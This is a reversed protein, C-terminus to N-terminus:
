PESLFDSITWIRVIERLRGALNDPGMVVDWFEDPGQCLEPLYM